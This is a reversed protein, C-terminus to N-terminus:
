ITREVESGSVVYYCFLPCSTKNKGLYKRALRTIDFDKSVIHTPSSNSSHIGAAVINLDTERRHSKKSSGSYFIDRVQELINKYESNEFSYLNNKAQEAVLLIGTHVRELESLFLRFSSRDYRGQHRKFRLKERRVSNAYDIAEKFVGKVTFVNDRDYDSFELILAQKVSQILDFHETEFTQGARLNALWSSCERERINSDLIVREGSDLVKELLIAM